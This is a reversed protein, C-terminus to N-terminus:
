HHTRIPPAVVFSYTIAWWYPFTGAKFVLVTTASNRKAWSQAQPIIPAQNNIAKYM